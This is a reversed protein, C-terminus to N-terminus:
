NSHTARWQRPACGAWVKFARSFATADSYGLADAVEALPLRTNALFHLAQHRRVDATLAHLSTGRRQLQRRLSRESMDLAAAARSARLAGTILLSQLAARTRELMREDADGEIAEVARVAAAHAAADAGPIPADLWDVAFIIETRVADFRLPAGFLRRHAATDRPRSGSFSVEIARWNPGCLGRLMRWGIALAADYIMAVGPFSHDYLAYGLAAVDRGTTDLYVLAGGDHASSYRQLNRLAAGVTPSQRMLAGTPGLMDFDFCRGLQLGFDARGTAATCEQLLRAARVYPIRAGPENLVKLSVGCRRLLPMPPIGSDRLLQPVPALLAARLDASHGDAPRRPAASGFGQPGTM